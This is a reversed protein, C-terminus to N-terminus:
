RILALPPRDLPDPIFALADREALPIRSEGFGAALAPPGSQSILIGSPCHAVCLSCRSAEDGHGQGPVRSQIQSHSSAVQQGAYCFATVAAAISRLPLLGVIIVVLLIKHCNRV